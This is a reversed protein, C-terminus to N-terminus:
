GVLEPHAPLAPLEPLALRELQARIEPLAEDPVPLRPPRPLGGPLGLLGLAAKTGRISGYRYTVPWLRTITRYALESETLRGARYHEILSVCLRPALNGESSLYGTGGLALTALAHAPGGCHVEVRGDVAEIVRGLYRLDGTSVNIGVVHGYREIAEVLLEVPYLYGVSQHVSIVSPWDVGDLVAFLYARLERDTPQNGHGIDLSYIQAADLGAARVMAGFRVMEAATRPERGMGRVPVKGALEEAAIALVRELEHDTLTYAEGSGSGAVYVGIGADALRRLHGRLGEEDLAGDATFPTLSIVYTSPERTTSTV